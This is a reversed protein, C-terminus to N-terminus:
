SRRRFYRPSGHRRSRSPEQEGPDDGADAAGRDQSDVLVVALHIRRRGSTCSRARRAPSRTPATARAAGRTETGRTACRACCCAPARADGSGCSDAPQGAGRTCSTSSTSSTSSSTSPGAAPGATAGRAARAHAFCGRPPVSRDHQVLAGRRRGSAGRLKGGLECGTCQEVTVQARGRARAAAAASRRRTWAAAAGRQSRVRLRATTVEPADDVRDQGRSRAGVDRIDRVSAHAGGRGEATRARHLAIVRNRRRRPSRGRSRAAARRLHTRAVRAFDTQGGGRRAPLGAHVFGPRGATRRGTVGLRVHEVVTRGVTSLAGSAAASADRAGAVSANPKRVRARARRGRDYEADAVARSADGARERLVRM